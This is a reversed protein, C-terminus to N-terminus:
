NAKFIIKQKADNRSMIIENSSIKHINWTNTGRRDVTTIINKDLKWTGDLDTVFSFTYTMDKRFDLGTAELLEKNEKYEAKSLKPNILDFFVWKKAVTEITIPTTNTQANLSLSSVVLLLLYIKKM